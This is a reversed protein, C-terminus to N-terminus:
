VKPLADPQCQMNCMLPHPGECGQQSRALSVTAEGPECHSSRGHAWLVLFWPLFDVGRNETAKASATSTQWPAGPQQGLQPLPCWQGAPSKWNLWYSRAAPSLSAAEDCSPRRGLDMWHHVQHLDADELQAARLQAPDYGPIWSPTPTQSASTSDTANGCQSAEAQSRTTVQRCTGGGATLPIVDDVNEHFDSWEEHPRTCYPCGGCPLSELAVGAQYEECGSEEYLAPARSLANANGHKKGPRHIIRFKFQFIYELWRALQGQPEKFRLLWTLSSHDTRITFERALLHVRFERLFTVVALLERQTVCYRRQQKNLKKSSFAIVREVGNQDQSFVGGVGVESADTDLIYDGSPNLSHCSLLPAWLWRLSRSHRTFVQPGSSSKAKVRWTPWPNPWWVSTLSLDATTTASDSSNKYGADTRRHNGAASQSSLSQTRVCVM